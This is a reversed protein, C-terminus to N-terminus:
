NMHNVEVFRQLLSRGDEGLECKSIGLNHEFVEVYKKKESEPEQRRLWIMFRSVPRAVYIEFDYTKRVLM